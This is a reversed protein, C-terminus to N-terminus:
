YLSKLFNTEQQELTREAALLGADSTFSQTFAWKDMMDSYLLDVRSIRENDTMTFQGGTIIAALESLNKSSEAALNAFVDQVYGIESESFHSLQKTTKKLRALISLELSIIDAIRGYSGIKPNISALSYFFNQHLNWEGKKIDAIAALGNKAITYGKELYNIYLELYAIQQEGYKLETSQQDFFSGLGQASTQVLCTCSTLLFLAVQKM